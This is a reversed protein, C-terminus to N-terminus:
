LCGTADLVKQRHEGCADLVRIPDSTGQTTYKALCYLYRAIGKMTLHYGAEWKRLFGQLVLRDILDHRVKDRPVDYNLDDKLTKIFQRERWMLLTPRVLQQRAMAALLGLTRGGRCPPLGDFLDNNLLRPLALLAEHDELLKEAFDTSRAVSSEATLPIALPREPLIALDFLEFDPLAPHLVLAMTKVEAAPFAARLLDHAFYLTALPRGNLIPRKFVSQEFLRRQRGPAIASNVVSKQITAQVLWVTGDRVGLVDLPSNIAGIKQLENDTLCSASGLASAVQGLIPAAFTGDVKHCVLSHVGYIKLRRINMLLWAARGARSDCSKLGHGALQTMERYNPPQQLARRYLHDFDELIAPMAEKGGSAYATLTALSTALEEFAFPNTNIESLRIQAVM